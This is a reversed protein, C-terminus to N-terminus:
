APPRSRGALVSSRAPDVIETVGHASLRAMFPGKGHRLLWLLEERYLPMFALFHITRDDLRLDQFARPLREPHTMLAGAFRTGPAYPEPPHGNATTHGCWLWGGHEHPMRALEELERLPWSNRLKGLGEHSLDWEPPLLVVLEAHTCGEAGPPPTMARQSMGATILSHFPRERSPPVHFLVVHFPHASDRHLTREIPGLHAAVHQGVHMMIEAAPGSPDICCEPNRPRFPLVRGPAHDQPSRM